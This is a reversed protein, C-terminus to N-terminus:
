TRKKIAQKVVSFTISRWSMDTSISGILSSNPTESRAIPKSVPVAKASSLPVAPMGIATAASRPTRRVIM